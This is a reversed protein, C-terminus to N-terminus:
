AMTLDTTPIAASLYVLIWREQRITNVDLIRNPHVIYTPVSPRGAMNIIFVKRNVKSNVACRDCHCM